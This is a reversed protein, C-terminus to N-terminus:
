FNHLLTLNFLLYLGQSDPALLTDQPCAQEAVGDPIDILRNLTLLTQQLLATQIQLVAAAGVVSLVRVGLEEAIRVLHGLLALKFQTCFILQFTLIRSLGLLIAIRHTLQLNEIMQTTALGGVFEM